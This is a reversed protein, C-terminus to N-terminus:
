PPARERAGCLAHLAAQYDGWESDSIVTDIDLVGPVPPPPPPPPAPDNGGLRTDPGYDLGAFIVGPASSPGLYPIEYPNFLPDTPNSYTVPGELSAIRGHGQYFRAANIAQQELDPDDLLLGYPYKVSM